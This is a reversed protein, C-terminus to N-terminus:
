SVGIKYSAVLVFVAYSLIACMGLVCSLAVILLCYCHMEQTMHWAVSNHLVHWLWLHSVGLVFSLEM